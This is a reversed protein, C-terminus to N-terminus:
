TSILVSTLSALFASGRILFTSNILRILSCAALPPLIGSISM